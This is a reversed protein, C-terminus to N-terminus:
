AQGAFIRAYRDCMTAEDFEREAKKRNAQGAAARLATDDLARAIARALAVENAPVILAANEESLMARVDGVETAVVALGSAMAELVSIPMQETDSSLAFLDFGAYFPAPDPQHGHFTVADSLGLAAARGELAPREPGDGIISLRVPRNARVRAVAGLLRAINKEPRLAAVTGIVPEAGPPGPMRPRFRALEIGNPVYRINSPPLRWLEVAIRELTRSPLVVTARRLTLRRMWVRRPLQKAREEPGFGDEVHVHRVIPLLNAIAWEITGWNYTVLLDPGISRLAARFRRINGALDGKVIALDPFAVDLGPPLREACRRDGDMAIIAHRWAGGLHAALRTFRVQPGGVAFTSFVSLMLPPPASM